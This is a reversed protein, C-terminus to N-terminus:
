TNWQLDLNHGQLSGASDESACVYVYYDVTQRTSHINLWPHLNFTVIM